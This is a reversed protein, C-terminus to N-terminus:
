PKPISVDRPTVAIGWLRAAREGRLGRVPVSRGPPTASAESNKALVDQLMTKDLTLDAVLRKLRQNEEQLQKLQRVQDIELGIDQKKWRYFTQESIGVKRVLEAVPVGVEAQKLIGVIQEVSFRKKKM